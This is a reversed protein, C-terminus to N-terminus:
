QVQCAVPVSTEARRRHNSIIRGGQVYKAKAAKAQPSTAAADATLGDIDEMKAHRNLIVEVDRASVEEYYSRLMLMQM